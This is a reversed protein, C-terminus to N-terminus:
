AAKKRRRAPHEKDGSSRVKPRELPAVRLAPDDVGIWFHNPLVNRAAKIQVGAAADLGGNLTTPNVVCLTPLQGYKEKYHAVARGIKEDLKRNSDDFWLMGVEM